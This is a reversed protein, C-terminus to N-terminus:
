CNSIFEQLLNEEDPDRALWSIAEGLDTFIEVAQRTGESFSQYVKAMGWIQQDFEPVLIALLSQPRNIEEKSSSITGEVTLEEISQVDRCDSLERLDARGGAIDNIKNILRLLSADDVKGAFKNFVFGHEELYYSGPEM